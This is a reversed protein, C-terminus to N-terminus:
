EKIRAKARRRAEEYVGTSAIGESTTQSEAVEAVMRRRKSRKWQWGGSSSEDGDLSRHKRWLDLRRGAIELVHFVLAVIILPFVLSVRQVSRPPDRFVQTVDARPKGNTRNSLETLYERGTPQGNRPMYEPSYPLTVVPGRAFQKESTRILTRWTGARDLRVNAELSQPGTWVLDPVIAEQEANPPIVKLVPPYEALDDRRADAFEIRIKANQGNQDVDVFVGSSDEGSLMWRAHTILFNAYDTWRGFRGTYQGDVELTIAVTRGTERFRFAAWPANYKDNSVM